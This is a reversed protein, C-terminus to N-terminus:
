KQVPAAVFSYAGPTQPRPKRIDPRTIRAARMSAVSTHQIAARLLDATTTESHM